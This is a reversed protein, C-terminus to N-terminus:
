LELEWTESVLDAGFARQPEEKVVKFGALRYINRAATLNSQTWLVVKRYGTERAFEICEEVLRRGVGCGRAHPEVLLLRLKAVEDTQKVIFVSGVPEGSLEAIWCRERRSDFNRVFQAAIEAVLAEFTEDWGYEQAYLAGHRHIVWGMDGPRHARLVLNSDTKKNGTLSSEVQRMARTLKQQDGEPLRALIKTVQASSERNLPAFAARGKKTLQLVIHRADQRSRERQILRARSFRALMRSLYGPDLGLDDGIEKATCSERHALEYLVRSESLSYDSGLLHEHLIGLQKTYFRTFQRVAQVRDQFAADHM